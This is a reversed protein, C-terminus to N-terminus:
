LVKRAQKILSELDMNMLADAGYKIVLMITAPNYPEGMITAVSRGLKSFVADSNLPDFKQSFIERSDTYSIEAANRKDMFENTLSEKVEAPSRSFFRDIAMPVLQMILYENLIKMQKKTFYNFAMRETMHIFFFMYEYYVDIKAISKEDDNMKNLLVKVQNCCSEAAVLNAVLMPSLVNIGDTIMQDKREETNGFLRTLFGM